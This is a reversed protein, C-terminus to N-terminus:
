LALSNTPTSGVIDETLVIPIPLELEKAKRILDGTGYPAGIRDLEEFYLM